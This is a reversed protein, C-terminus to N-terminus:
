KCLLTSIKTGYKTMARTMDEKSCDYGGGGADKEYYCASLIGTPRDKGEMVFASVRKVGAQKLRYYFALDIDKVSDIDGYWMGKKIVFQIWQNTSTRINTYEKAVGHVHGSFVDYTMDVYIFKMGNLNSGGNHTEWVVVRDAYVDAKFEILCNRVQPDIEMRKEYDETQIQNEIENFKEIVVDPHIFLYMIFGLICSLILTIVINQVGYKQIAEPMKSFSKFIEIVKNTEM